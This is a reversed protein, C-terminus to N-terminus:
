SPLLMHNNTMLIKDETQKKLKGMLQNKILRYFLVLNLIAIALTIM